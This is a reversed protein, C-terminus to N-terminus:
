VKIKIINSMVGTEAADVVHLEQSSQLEFNADYSVILRFVSRLLTTPLQILIYLRFFLINLQLPYLISPSPAAISGSTPIIIPWLESIVILPHMTDSKVCPMCRNFVFKLMKTYLSNIDFVTSPSKSMPELELEM